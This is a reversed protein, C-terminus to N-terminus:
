SEDARAHNSGREKFCQGENAETLKKRRQGKRWAEVGPRERVEEAM